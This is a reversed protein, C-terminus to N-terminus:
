GACSAHAGAAQEMAVIAACRVRLLIKAGSGAFVGPPPRLSRMVVVVTRGVRAANGCDRLDALAGCLM